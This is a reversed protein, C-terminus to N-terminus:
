EFDEIIKLSSKPERGSQDERDFLLIVETRVNQKIVFYYEASLKRVLEIGRGTESVLESIDDGSEAAKLIMQNQEIAKQISDLIKTKSLKGKYDNISIGYGTKGQVFFIDVYENEKLRVPLRMEKEKSYGHSHYLANICLENLILNLVSKNKLTFGWDEIQRIVMNIAPKIQESSPIRLKKIVSDKSSLYNSLGFINKKTILKEALSLLENPKIPKSLVNGIGEQFVRDFFYDIDKETTMIVPIYSYYTNLYNYLAFANDGPLEVESVVLDIDYIKLQAIADYASECSLVDYGGEIFVNKLIDRYSSFDVILVKYM